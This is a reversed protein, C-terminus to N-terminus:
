CWRNRRLSVGLILLLLLVGSAPNGEAQGVHCGCGKPTPGVKVTTVAEAVHGSANRVRVKYSYVGPKRPTVVHPAVAAWGTDWSGDYGDDWKAQASPDSPAAILQLKQGVTPHAPKFSLTVTVDSGATKMGLAGAADLRGYGYDGNPITGTLDDVQAGSRIADRAADGTIGAQALLAAVGTVHPSAGSTGGFVRFSGYPIMSGMDHETATWPNDPATVDPKIVGDIRPGRPSYARISKDMDAYGMPVDYVDYYFHFWPESPTELHDPQANVAICHDAVSPVGVTSRDTAITADWAAGVAWTSQDDALYADVTIANNADGTVTLTWTGVDFPKPVTGNGNFAYLIVDAFWLNRSTTQATAYYQSGSMLSGIPASLLDYSDGNPGTLTLRAPTGGQVDLSLDVYRLPTASTKAHAPLDFPLTVSAGALLLAAAHKRASGEDGTPCTNTVNDDTTSSDVLTSLGDSGDLPVATWPAMEYLMVNPHQGLAWVVGDIPLVDNPVNWAVVVEADPAMGVWRRGVLPVDGVLITNVGTAHFADSFGEIQGDSYNIQTAALDVGRTFTHQVSKPYSLDVDIARFKSTGLRVLKEGPDLKGNRNVDDPVFLPEGLAPTTDDFGNAAGYDRQRNGNSDLYIWDISPDFGSPRAPVVQDGHYDDITAAALLLGIEDPGAKGNGDLDVADTGPTFVGDKDVDIWDFYGADGKFFTPHFPDVMSDVDGILVGQGTVFDLDPRAGRADDLRLLQASRDLPLPGRAPAASIRRVNALAALATAAAADVTAPVFRRYSLIKGDARSLQAGAQELTALAAADAEQELEILVKARGPRPPGHQWAGAVGTAIARTVNPDLKVRGVPAAASWSAVLLLSLMRM